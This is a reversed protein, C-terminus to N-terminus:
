DIVNNKRKMLDMIEYIYVLIGIIFLVISGGWHGDVLYSFIVVANVGVILKVVSSINADDKSLKGSEFADKLRMKIFLPMADLFLIVITAIWPNLSLYGLYRM